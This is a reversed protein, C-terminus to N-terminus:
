PLEGLLKRYGEHERLPDLNPDKKLHELSDWGQFLGAARAQSLLGVARDAYRRAMQEREELPLQADARVAGLCRAYVCALDYVRHAAPPAQDALARAERAARAHNGVRALAYARHVRVADDNPGPGFTLVCEWDALAELHRELRTLALARAAHADRLFQIAKAKHPEQRLVGELTCVARGTWDVAAAFRGRALELRGLAYRTAGLGVHYDLVKPHDHTLREWLGLAQGYSTEALAARNTSGYLIALNHYGKALHCRYDAVRPQDAVLQEWSHVAKQYAEEALTPRNTTRYLDGLNSHSAALQDQYDPVKSDQDALHQRTKLAKQYAAEADPLRGLALWLSGLSNHTRALNERYGPVKPYHHVLREWAARAKGYVDEAQPLRGTAVFLQGLNIQCAAPNSQYDPVKPYEESLREWLIVAKEYAAEAQESRGTAGYLLALNNHVLALHDRYDPLGPYNSSLLEWIARAEQYAAEAQATRGTDNYLKGLNQQCAALRDQSATASPDAYVLPKLLALAEQYATEAEDLRGTVSCFGGWSSHYHALDRWPESGEPADATLRAALARAQQFASEAERLRGLNMLGLGQNHHSQALDERYGRVAPFEAVLKALLDVARRYADEADAPRGLRQLIDGVRLYARGIQQRLDPDTGNQRLFEQYFTLAQELLARRVPEMLPINALRKDGVETLMKDVADRAMQFNAEARQFNADARRKQEGILVASVGLAVVATVLLAAAATVLPRHRRGWRRLRVPLPEGYAQVPEDALYRQVEQALDAATAYRGERRKALAKLCVAELARPAGVWVQRPRVPEETQVKGLVERTSPGAFPPRGTLIEYLVAGLGYVDTRRDVLDPQGAAQEPAMYGPTGLVQGHATPQEAGEREVAVPPPGAEADASGLVKALGWDLVIVEGFDGVIINQGKLDRHIVGRAHAYAVTNCVGVFANLLGLLELPGARETVRQHHFAEVAESLTRGRVFRMTYFPQGDEPRRGLEYVPVIGPHELQGTIRAEKLFWAQSAAQHAHEARLEKLAVERGLDGDRALWVRGLGGTAHVDVLTYHDRTLSVTPAIPAADRGATPSRVTLVKQIEPNTLTSLASRLESSTSALVNLVSDGHNRLKRELLREVEAVDLPTLWGRHVLWDPLAPNERATWVTWAEAFQAPTLIGAQLAFVVFLLDRDSDM